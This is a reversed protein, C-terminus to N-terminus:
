ELFIVRWYLTFCTVQKKALGKDNDAWKADEAAAEKAAKDSCSKENKRERAAVAKSNEGSMKKPMKIQTYIQFM